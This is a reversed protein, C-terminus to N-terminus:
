IGGPDPADITMNKGGGRFLNSCTSATSVTIRKQNLLRTGKSSMSSLNALTALHGVNGSENVLNYRLDVRELAVLRELGCLSEIRNSALNSAGGKGFVSKLTTTKNRLSPYGM